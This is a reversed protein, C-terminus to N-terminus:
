SWYTKADDVRFRRVAILLFAATFATLVALTPAVSQLRRGDIIAMKYARMAWYTPTAPAVAQAWGPLISVPTLAGGLGAFLIAGLNGISNVQQVTRAVSVVAVGLALYCAGLAASTAVVAAVSGHIRLDFFLAGGTFVVLFQLAALVALPALKGAAIEIPRAGSSRLRDWTNWGHEQFFYYGTFGVLFFAFMVLLGPVALEAGNADILGRQRLESRYLPKVFSIIILPMVVLTILPVPDRSLLGLQHRAISLTRSM